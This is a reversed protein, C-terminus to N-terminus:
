WEESINIYAEWALSPTIEAELLKATMDNLAKKNRISQYILLLEEEILIDNPNELYSKELLQQAEEIEGEDILSLAEELKNIYAPETSVEKKNHIVLVKSSCIGNALVSGRLWCNVIETNEFLRSLKTYNGASLSDKAKDLLNFYFHKGSHSLAISLDQFAGPLVKELPAEIGLLIRQTHLRLNHPTRSINRSLLRWATLTNYDNGLHLRNDLPLKLDVYFDHADKRNADTM